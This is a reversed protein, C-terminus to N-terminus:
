ITSFQALSYWFLFMYRYFPFGHVHEWSWDAIETKMGSRYTPKKKEQKCNTTCCIMAAPALSEKIQM